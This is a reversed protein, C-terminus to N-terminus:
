AVIRVADRVSGQAHRGNPYRFKYLVKCSVLDKLFMWCKNKVGAKGRETEVQARCQCTETQRVHVM